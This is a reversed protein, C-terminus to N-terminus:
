SAYAKEVEDRFFATPIGDILIVFIREEFEELIDILMGLRAADQAHPNIVRMWYLIPPPEM